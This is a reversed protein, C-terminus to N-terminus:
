LLYCVDESVFEKIKNVDGVQVSSMLKEELRVVEHQEVDSISPHNVCSLKLVNIKCRHILRKTENFKLHLKKIVYLLLM